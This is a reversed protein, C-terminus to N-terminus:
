KMTEQKVKHDVVHRGALEARIDDPTIGMEAMLVLVHYALDAIEYVTEERSDKMAGIVVETCEEGVKKLIKEKGRNFLYTTYSGEKPATKRGLLLNYLANMSFSPANQAVIPEFFCSEAGTHCAPGSKIVEIVLADRDCDATISMIKQVNGSTEGKRWLAQRSRSYFCTTGEQLSIELSEKNMYALTLVQKTYFDQVIAPILGKDDFKLTNIDFGM